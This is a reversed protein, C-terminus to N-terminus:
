HFCSEVSAVLLSNDVDGALYTLSKFPKLWSTLYLLKRHDKREIDAPMYHDFDM